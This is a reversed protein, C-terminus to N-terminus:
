GTGPLSTDLFETVLSRLEDPRDAEVHHGAGAVVRVSAAPLCRRFEALRHGTLMAGPLEPDAAVALVPVRVSGLRSAWDVEGQTGDIMEAFVQDETEALARAMMLSWEASRGPRPTAIEEIPRRARARERSMMERVSPWDQALLIPPDVAVVRRGLGRAGVLLAVVAGLSHGLLDTAPWTELVAAVDAAYDDFRYGRAPRESAGHGRLDVAHVVRDGCLQEALPALTRWSEFIGHVLLLPPRTARACHWTRVRLRVPRPHGPSEIM